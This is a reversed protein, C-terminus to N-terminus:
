EVEEVLVEQIETIETDQLGQSDQLNKIAEEQQGITEAQAEIIGAQEAVLAQLEALKQLTNPQFMTIEVIDENQSISQFNKYDEYTQVVIGNDIVEVKECDTAEAVVEDLSEVNTIVLGLVNAGDSKNTQRVGGDVLDFTKTKLKVQM